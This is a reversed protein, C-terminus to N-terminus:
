SGARGPSAAPFPPCRRHSPVEDVERRSSRRKIAHIVRVMAETWPGKEDLVAILRARETDIQSAEFAVLYADATMVAISASGPDRTHVLDIIREAFQDLSPMAAGQARLAFPFANRVLRKHSRLSRM